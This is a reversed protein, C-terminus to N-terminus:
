SVPRNFAVYDTMSELADRVKSRDPGGRKIAEFLVKAAEYPESEQIGPLRQYKKQFADIFAKDRPDPSGPFFLTDLYVGEVDKGGQKLFENAYDIGSVSIETKIGMERAQRILLVADNYETSFYILDPKSAKIATLPSQFDVNSGPTYSKDYTLTANAKQLNELLYQHNAKGYDTDAYLIAIKKKGLKNLFLDALNKGEMEQSDATRFIFTHDPLKILAPNSPTPAVVPIGGKQYAPIAAATASSSFHGVVGVVEKADVLRQAVIAAQNPDGKDDEVRLVIQKGNIGGAANIEDAALQVGDAIAKGYEAGDGTMPGAVGVTITNRNKSGTSCGSVALVIILVIALVSVLRKM